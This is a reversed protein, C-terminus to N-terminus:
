MAVGSTSQSCCRTPPTGAVPWTPTGWGTQRRRPLGQPDHRVRRRHGRCPHNPQRAAPSRGTPVLRLTTRLAHKSSPGANRPGHQRGGTHLIATSDNACPMRRRSPSPITAAPVATTAGSARWTAAHSAAGAAGATVAAVTCGGWNRGPSAGQCGTGDEGEATGCRGVGPKACGSYTGGGVGGCAMGGTGGARAAGPGCSPM